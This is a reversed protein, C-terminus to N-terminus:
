SSYKVYPKEKKTSIFRRYLENRDELIYKWLVDQDFKNDAFLIANKSMESLMTPSKFCTEIAKVIHDSSGKPIVLGTIGKQMADTPGPIDSVIVPVGMAEAEIVGSGFGERYSPLIFLDLAALYYEVNKTYGCYIVADSSFSWSFLDENIGEDLDKSGIIFLKINTYKASIVKFASLLENIGKDKDIRGVFGVVFDVASVYYKKRIIGRWKQKSSVDFKNLDVGNASGNWVVKSKNEKYLGEQHSFLLNGKSDPEIYTSLNCVFKELRKFIKRKLGQFGVYRIGWQCYLRIPTQALFSAISAYMSANPTSYQVIDFKDIKFLYYLKYISVLSGIGDIGRKMKVPFYTVESPIMSKLIPDDNCVITVDYGNQSLFGAQSLLFCNITESTTTVICIKKTKM